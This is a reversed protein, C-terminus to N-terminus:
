EGGESGDSPAETEVPAEEVPSEEVPPEEVPPPETETSSETEVDDPTRALPRVYTPVAPDPVGLIEDKIDPYDLPERRNLEAYAKNIWESHKKQKKAADILETLLRIGYEELEYYQPFVKEQLLDMFAWGEEESLGPPPRISLGLDALYLVSMGHLYAAGTNEHFSRYKAIFGKTKAEFEKVEAPKVDRLLVGDKDEDGVLEEDTLDEYAEILYRIESAAAYRHGLGGIEGGAASVENFTEIIADLQKAHQRNNGQSLYIEAITNQPACTYPTNM